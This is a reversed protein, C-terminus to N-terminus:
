PGERKGSRLNRQERRDAQSAFDDRRLDEREGPSVHASELLKSRDLVVLRLNNSISCAAALM